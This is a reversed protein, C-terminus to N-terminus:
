ARTGSYAAAWEAVEDDALKRFLNDPVVMDAGAPVAALAAAVDTPWTAEGSPLVAAMAEAAPVPMAPYKLQSCTTLWDPAWSLM